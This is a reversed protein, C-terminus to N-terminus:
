VALSLVSLMNLIAGGGNGEIIPAFARIVNLTGFSHTEMEELRVDEFAGSLLSPPPTRRLSASMSSCPLTAPWTRPAACELGPRHHGTPHTRRRVRRDNRDRAAAYVKAGARHTPSRFRLWGLGRNAGTVLATIQDNNM